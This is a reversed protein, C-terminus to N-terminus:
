PTIVGTSSADVAYHLGCKRRQKITHQGRFLIKAWIADQDYPEIFDTAKFFLARSIVLELWKSNLFFCGADTGDAPPLLATADGATNGVGPFFESWFMMMGKFKIAEFGASAVGDDGYNGYRQQAVLGGEYSEYYPQSALGLDPHDQTSGKSCDNYLQTMEMRFMPATTAASLKTRNRWWDEGAQDIAHVTGAQTPDKQILNGLPLMDKNNNGRDFLIGSPTGQVLQREVMEKLTMEAIDVKDRLLERKGALGQNQDMEEGSIGVTVALQALDEITVTISDTPNVNLSEFKSYSMANSNQAWIVPVKVRAGGNQFRIGRGSGRDRGRGRNTLYWLYPIGTFINDALEASHDDLTTSFLSSYIRLESTSAM